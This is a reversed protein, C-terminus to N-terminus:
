DASTHIVRKVVTLNEEPVEIGREVMESAIIRMSEKEIDAPRVYEYTKM